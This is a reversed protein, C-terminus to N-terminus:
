QSTLWHLALIQLEKLDIVGDGDPYPAIDIAPNDQQWNLTLVSFDYMDINCGGAFDGMYLWDFEYAGM